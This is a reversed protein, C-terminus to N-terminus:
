KVFTKNESDYKCHSCIQYDFDIDDYERGCSPCNELPGEYDELYEKEFDPETLDDNTM